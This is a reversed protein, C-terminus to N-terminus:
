YKIPNNLTPADVKPSNVSLSPLLRCTGVDSIQRGVDRRTSPAVVESGMRCGFNCNLDGQGGLSIM